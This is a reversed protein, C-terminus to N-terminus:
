HYTSRPGSCRGPLFLPAQSRAMRAGSEQGLSPHSLVGARPGRFLKLAAAARAGARDLLPAVAGPAVRVAKAAAAAATGRTWGTARATHTTPEFQSPHVSAQGDNPGDVARANSSSPTWDGICYGEFGFRERVCLYSPVVYARMGSAAAHLQRRQQQRAMVGAVAEARRSGM